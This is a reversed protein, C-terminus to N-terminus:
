SNRFELNSVVNRNNKIVIAKKFQKDAYTDKLFIAEPDLSKYVRIVKLGSLKVSDNNEDKLLSFNM